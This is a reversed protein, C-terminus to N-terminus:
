LRLGSTFTRMAVKLAFLPARVVLKGHSSSAIGAYTLGTAQPVMLCLSHGWLLKDGTDQLYLIYKGDESWSYQRCLSLFAIDYGSMSLHLKVLM